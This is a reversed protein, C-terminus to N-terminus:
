YYLTINDITFFPVTKDINEVTTYTYYGDSVGYAMIEDGELFRSIDWNWNVFDPVFLFAPRNRNGNVAVILFIDKGNPEDIQQIINAKFKYKIKSYKDASRAHKSYNLTEYNKPDFHKKARLMLNIQELQGVSDSNKVNYKKRYKDVRSQTDKTFTGNRQQTNYFGLTYLHDKLKLVYEGKSGIRLTPAKAYYEYEEKTIGLEIAKVANDEWPPLVEELFRAAERQKLKDIIESYEAFINNKDKECYAPMIGVFLVACIIIAILKRMVEEKEAEYVM